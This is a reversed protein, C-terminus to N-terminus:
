CFVFLAVSSVGHAKAIPSVISQIQDITYMQEM